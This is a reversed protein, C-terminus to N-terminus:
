MFEKEIDVQEALKEVIEFDKNIRYKVGDKVVIAYGDEFSGAYDYREDTAFNGDRDIYTYENEEEDRPVFADKIAM